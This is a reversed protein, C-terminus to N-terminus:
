TRASGRTRRSPARRGAAPAARARPGARRHMPLFALITLPGGAGDARRANALTPLSEGSRTRVTLYVEDVRGALKLTPHLHTAYYLRAPPPLLRDLRLGPLESPAYGLEEGLRRNAAVVRGDDAYAIVACPLADVAVERM